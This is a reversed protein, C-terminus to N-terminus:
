TPQQTQPSWTSHTPENTTHKAIAYHAHYITLNHNNNTQHHITIHSIPGTHTYLQTTRPTTNITYTTTTTGTPIDSPDNKWDSYFNLNANGNASYDLILLQKRDLTTESPNRQSHHWDLHVPKILYRIDIGCTGYKGNDNYGSLYLSTPTIQYQKGGSKQFWLCPSAYIGDIPTNSIFRDGPDFGDQYSTLDDQYILFTAAGNSTSTATPNDYYLYITAPNTSLDDTIKVWFTAYNSESVTETWYSLLTLCDSSTFRIDAFDSRCNGNLYVSSGSDVGSGYYV